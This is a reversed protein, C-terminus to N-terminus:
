CISAFLDVIWQFTHPFTDLIAKRVADASADAGLTFPITGYAKDAIAIHASALGGAAIKAAFACGGLAYIGLALGGAAFIGLALGGAAFPGIAIGGVALLLGLAFGGLSVLGVPFGGLALLGAAFGGLALVGTATNGIAVIGKARQPEWGFNIHVLPLGFWERKSRYEYHFAANFRLGSQNENRERGVLEDLSLGFLDSLEILKNMEPATDGLEWKSVTQRTVGVKEGLQEQSWGNQKRLQMLHSSFNM